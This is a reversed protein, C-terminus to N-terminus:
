RTAHVVHEQTCCGTSDVSDHAHAHRLDDATHREPSLDLHPRKARLPLRQHLEHQWGCLLESGLRGAPSSNTRGSEYSGKEHVDGLTGMVIVASRSMGNGIFANNRPHKEVEIPSVNSHLLLPASKTKLYPEDM